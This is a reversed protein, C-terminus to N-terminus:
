LDLDVILPVHDSVAQILEPGISSAPFARVERFSDIDDLPIFVVAM